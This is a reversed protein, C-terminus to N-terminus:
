CYGFIVRNSTLTTKATPATAIACLTQLSSLALFIDLWSSIRWSSPFFQVTCSYHVPSNNSHEWTVPSPAQCAEEETHLTQCQAQLLLQQQQQWRWYWQRWTAYCQKQQCRKKKKEIPNQFLKTAWTEKVLAPQIAIGLVWNPITLLLRAQAMSIQDELANYRLVQHCPWRSYKEISSRRRHALHITNHSRTLKIYPFINKYTGFTPFCTTSYYSDM